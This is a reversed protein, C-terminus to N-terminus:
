APVIRLIRVIDSQPEVHFYVANKGVISVEINRGRNDKEVFTGRLQENEGLSLLFAVLKDRDPRDSTGLSDIVDEAEMWNKSDRDDLTRTIEMRHALSRQRRRVQLLLSVEDLEEDSLKEIEAKWNISTMEM